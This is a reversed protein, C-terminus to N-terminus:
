KNCNRVSSGIHKLSNLKDDPVAVPKQQSQKYMNESTMVYSVGIRIAKSTSRRLYDINGYIHRNARGKTEEQTHSELQVGRQRYVRIYSDLQV